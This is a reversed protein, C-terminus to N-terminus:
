LGMQELLERRKEVARVLKFPPVRTKGDEHNRVSIMGGQHGRLIIDTEMANFPGRLIVDEAGLQWYVLLKQYDAVSIRILMDELGVRIHLDVTPIRRRKKKAPQRQGSAAAARRRRAMAAQNPQRAM